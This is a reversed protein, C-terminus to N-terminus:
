FIDILVYDLSSAPYKGEDYPLDDWKIFVWVVDKMQETTIKHGTRAEWEAVTETLEGSPQEGEAFASEIEANIQGDLGNDEEEEDESVLLKKKGKGKRQSIKKAQNKKRWLLVDLVRDVTKWALPIRREADPAAGLPVALAKSESNNSDQEESVIEFPITMADGGDAVKDAETDLKMTEEDPLAEALLEVKAGVTLFNKLKAAHTTVLWMHPVWQTRRYSRSLWKVLYERPLPSKYSPPENAPRPPEVATSPYPRWALIKDLEWTYSSCDGCRWGTNSQYHEALTVPDVDDKDDAYETPVPLHEYHSLRKCTFCRYLLERLFAQEEVSKGPPKTSAGQTGNAMELDGDLNTSAGPSADKKTESSIDPELALELCGMCVGGKMCSGCIFETTQNPTLGPRKKVDIQSPAQEDNEGDQGSAQARREAEASELLERDRDRSAKLIEHRQTSNQHLIL